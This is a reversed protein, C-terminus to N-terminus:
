IRLYVFIFGRYIVGNRIWTVPTLYDTKTNQVLEYHAIPSVLDIALHECRFADLRSIDRDNRFLLVPVFSSRFYREFEIIAEM